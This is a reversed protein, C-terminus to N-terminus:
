AVNNGWFWKALLTKKGKEKKESNVVTENFNNSELVLIADGVKPRVVIGSKPFLTVANEEIELYLFVTAIRLGYDSPIVREVQDNQEDRIKKVYFFNV